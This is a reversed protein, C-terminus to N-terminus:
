PMNMTIRSDFKGWTGVPTFNMAISYRDVDEQHYAIRHELYSPFYVISNKRPTFTFLDSNFINDEKKVFGYQYGMISKQFELNTTSDEFYYVASYYYNTHMHWHAVTEPLTKTGWSSGMKFTNEEDLALFDKIFMNFDKEIHWKIEPFQDLTRKDITQMSQYKFGTDQWIDPSNKYYQELERVYKEPLFDFSITLPASFLPFVSREM